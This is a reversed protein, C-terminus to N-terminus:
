ETERPSPHLDQDVHSSWIVTLMGLRNTPVFRSDSHLRTHLFGPFRGLFSRICVVFASFRSCSM